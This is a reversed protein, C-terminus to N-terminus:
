SHLGLDHTSGSEYTHLRIFLSGSGLNHTCGWIMHAAGVWLHARYYIIMTGLLLLRGRKKQAGYCLHAGTVLSSLIQLREVNTFTILYAKIKKSRCICMDLDIHKNQPLSSTQRAIRLSTCLPIVLTGWVCMPLSACRIYIYKGV